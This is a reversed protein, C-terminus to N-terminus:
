KYHGGIKHSRAVAQGAKTLSSARIISASGYKQKIQDMATSIQEKKGIDHFFHLQQCDHLPSLGSLTVSVSRIPEGDWHQCFLRYASKFIDMGFNTEYYLKSQRYFGTPFAFDAGKAGVSVTHGLYQKCRARYGVEESLELLVVKIEALEKYDRPLTMQHGVAKQQVHSETSVPSDDQGNATMWLVVGNIGWKKQLLEMPYQALQGITRIGMHELHKKMKRGVGFLKGVPLPWLLSHISEKPLYFIGEKNKKAFHDCAMKALAKNPGIGIRAYVGTEQLIRNQLLLATKHATGFLHLSPTMDVFQEDISYPETLDSFSELISTIQLSVDIYKQMRPRVVVLEPCKQEAQWLAEATSIGWKKALPCAALIIGSRREPDGAVVLPKDRLHPLCAKEVSAYFSQMDVLFITTTKM